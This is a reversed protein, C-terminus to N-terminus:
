PFSLGNVIIINDYHFLYHIIYPIRRSCYVSPFIRFGSFSENNSISTQM